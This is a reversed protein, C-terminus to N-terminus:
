ATCPASGTSSRPWPTAWTGALDSAAGPEVMVFVGGPVLAAHIRELVAVPDAPDHAADFTFVVDLPEEVELRAAGRVEFCANPLGAAESRARAIADPALDYGTFSSAPFAAALLVM